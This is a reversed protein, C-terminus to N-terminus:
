KKLNRRLPSRNVDVVFIAYHPTKHSWEGPSRELYILDGLHIVRVATVGSKLTSGLDSSSM